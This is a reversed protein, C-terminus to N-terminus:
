SADPETTHMLTAYPGLGREVLRAAGTLSDGLPPELRAQPCHEALAAAFPELVLDEIAFLRGSHSVAVSGPEAAPFTRRLVSATTAALDTVADAFTARALEDGARAATAVAPTFAALDRVPTASSYLRHSLGALPGFHREAAEELATGPGRSERARLAARAAARGIAFGSGGDGLLYGLGDARHATGDAAVGLVVSGTGAAAVVGPAGDLAGAHATVMDPGLMVEAGDLRDSILAGLRRRLELTAPAGTLGLCIREVPDVVALAARAQSVASAVALLGDGSRHTFGDAEAVRAPVGHEVVAMRLAGQGGDVALRASV